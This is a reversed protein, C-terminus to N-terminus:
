RVGGVWDAGEVVSIAGSVCGVSVGGGAADAVAALGLVPVEVVVLPLVPPPLVVLFSSFFSSSFFSSFFLSPLLDHKLSHWDANWAQRVGLMPLLPSGWGGGM